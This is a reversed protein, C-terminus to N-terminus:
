KLFTYEYSWSPNCPRHNAMLTVPLKSLRPLKRPQPMTRVCRNTTLPERNVERSRLSYGYLNDFNGFNGIVRPTSTAYTHEPVSTRTRYITPDRPTDSRLSERSSSGAHQGDFSGTRETVSRQLGPLTRHRRHYRLLAVSSTTSSLTFDIKANRPAEDDLACGSM